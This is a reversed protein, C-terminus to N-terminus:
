FRDGFYVANLFLRTTGRWFGRFNPNDILLVVSGGGLRDAMVSPSGALRAENADSVYGSLHPDSTLQGVTGYPNRSPEFFMAHDRWVPITGTTYGFALPHTLDLDAEWISGGIAQAGQIEAADAWPLRGPPDEEADDDDGGGPPDINPTFGNAAAWAAASRVAILTGGERVWSQLRELRAGSFMGGPNGSVLVLVDYDAWDVRGLDGVDVKTIPQGVRQDMLHWLQGVEYSSVGDGIPMLIRPARVPGFSRSGLDPGELAYGSTAAHIPIEGARAAARVAALLSDPSLTQIAVPVSISGRGLEVEGRTTPATWPRESMEARVGAAQLARLATPAGSDRWDFLYAVSSRDVSAALAEPVSTVEDGLPLSGPALEGDPIGYALSV